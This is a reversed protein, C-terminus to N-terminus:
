SNKGPYISYQLWPPKGDRFVECSIYFASLYARAALRPFKKVVQVQHTKYYHWSEFIYKPPPHTIPCVETLNFGLMCVFEDCRLLSIFVSQQREASMRRWYLSRAHWCYETCSIAHCCCLPTMQRKKGLMGLVWIWQWGRCSPHLSTHIISFAASQFYMYWFCHLFITSNQSCWTLM